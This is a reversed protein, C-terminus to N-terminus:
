NKKHRVFEYGSEKEEGGEDTARFRIRDDDNEVGVLWCISWVTLLFYLGYVSLREAKSANKKKLQQKQKRRRDADSDFGGGYFSTKLFGFFGFDGVNYECRYGWIGEQSEVLIDDIGDDDFDVIRVPAAISEPFNASDLVQAGLSALRWKANQSDFSNLPIINTKTTSLISTKTLARESVEGTLPNFVAFGVETTILIATKSITPSFRVNLTHIGGAFQYTAPNVSRPAHKSLWLQKKQKTDFSSTTGSATSTIINYYTDHQHQHQSQQQSQQQHPFMKMPVTKELDSLSQFRADVKIRNNERTLQDKAMLFKKDSDSTSKPIRNLDIGGMKDSMRKLEWAGGKNSGQVQLVSADWLKEKGGVGSFVQAHMSPLAVRLREDSDLKEGVHQTAISITDLNSDSNLDMFKVNTATASATATADPDDNLAVEAVTRGNEADIFRVGRPHNLVVLKTTSSASSSLGAVLRSPGSSTFGDLKAAYSLVDAKHPSASALWDGPSAPASASDAALQGLNFNHQSFKRSNKNKNNNSNNNNNNVWIVEGTSVDVGYVTAVAPADNRACVFSLAYVGAFHVGRFEVNESALDCGANGIDPDTDLKREWVVETVDVHPGSHVLSNLRIIGSATVSVISAKTTNTNSNSHDFGDLHVIQSVSSLLRPAYISSTELFLPSPSSSSSTIAIARIHTALEKLKVKIEKTSHKKKKSKYIDDSVDETPTFTTVIVGSSLVLPPVDDVGDHHHSNHLSSHAYFTLTSCKLTPIPSFTPNSSSVPVRNYTLLLAALLFPIVDRLRLQYKM